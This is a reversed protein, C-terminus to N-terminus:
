RLLDIATDLLVPGLLFRSAQHSEHRQFEGAICDVRYLRANCNQGAAYRATLELM